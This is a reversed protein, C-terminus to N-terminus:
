GPPGAAGGPHGGPTRRSPFELRPSRERIAGWGYQRLSRIKEGAVADNTVVMGGDGFAGLNKTPYFSFCGAAGWAGAKKGRYAAGHAQACDEIAQLGHRRAIALIPELEAPQGYIHVPLLARTRPGIAAEIRAPDMTFTAEDIDVFVPRAGCMEIAAVTAVATHSVTIVEAGEGVGAARLALHLADTGSAVGVACTVGLYDAFEKEFAEVERGLIYWGSNLVRALAGDIEEKRALYAARLDVQPVIIQRASPV